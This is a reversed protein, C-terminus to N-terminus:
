LNYDLTSDLHFNSVKSIKEYTRKSRYYTITVLFYMVLFPFDIISGFFQKLILNQRPRYTLTAVNKKVDGIRWPNLYLCGLALIVLPDLLICRFYKRVLEKQDYELTAKKFNVRFDSSRWSLMVVLTQMIIPLNWVTREFYKFIVIELDIGSKNQEFYNTFFLVIIYYLIIPM